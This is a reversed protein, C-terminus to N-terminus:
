YTACLSIFEHMYDKMHTHKSVCIHTYSPQVLIISILWKLAGGDEIEDYSATAIVGIGLHRKVYYKIIETDTATLAM